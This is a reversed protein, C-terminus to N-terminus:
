KWFNFLKTEPNLPKPKSNKLSQINHFHEYSKHLQKRLENFYKDSNIKALPIAEGLKM